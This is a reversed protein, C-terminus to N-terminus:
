RTLGIIRELKKQLIEPIIDFGKLTEKLHRLHYKIFLEGDKVPDDRTEKLIRNFNDKLEDM